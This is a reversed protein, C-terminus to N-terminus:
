GINRVVKITMNIDDFLKRITMHIDDLLVISIVYTDCLYGHIDRRWCGIKDCYFLREM